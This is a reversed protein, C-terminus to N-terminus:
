ILAGMMAPTRMIHRPDTKGCVFPERLTDGQVVIARCGILSLQLYTMYVGSWDMDQAVVNLRRQYDFGMDRLVKCAAIIMGGGGCSPENLQLRSQQLVEDQNIGLRACLESVNFPTFFQGIHGNSINSEMYIEGLIDRMEEELAEALWALMESFMSLERDGYKGATNRYREEREEWPGDHFFVCCSNQISLACLEVWDSFINHPSYAGSLSQIANVISKKPTM